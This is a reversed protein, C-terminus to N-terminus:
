ESVEGIARNHAEVVKKAGEHSFEYGIIVNPGGAMLASISVLGGTDAGVRWPVECHAPLLYLTASM